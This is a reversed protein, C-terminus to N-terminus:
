RLGGEVNSLTAEYDAIGGYTVEVNDADFGTVKTALYNDAKQAAVVPNIEWDFYYFNWMYAYALDSDDVNEVSYCDIYVPEGNAAAHFVFQTKYENDIGFAAETCPGYQVGAISGGTITVTSAVDATNGYIGHNAIIVSYNNSSGSLTNIGVLTCNTFNYNTNASWMNLATWGKVVTGTITFTTGEGNRLGNVPDVVPNISYKFGYIHCDTINVTGNKVNYTNIGRNDAGYDATRDYDTINSNKITTKNVNLTANEVTPEFSIGGRTTTISCTDVSLSSGTGLIAFRGSVINANKVTGSVGKFYITNVGSAGTITFNKGDIVVSKEITLTGTLTVDGTLEVTGGEAAASIAAELEAQTMTVDTAFAAPALTLMLCLAMLLALIRKKM